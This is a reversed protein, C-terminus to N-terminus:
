HETWCSPLLAQKTRAAEDLQIYRPSVTGYDLILDPHLSAVEEMVDQRGTLMPVKSLRNIADPLWARAEPSLSYPWGIMLDPALAGLLVAAPPGAPLIRLPHDPVQIAHGTADAIEAAGVPLSQLVFLLSLILNRGM